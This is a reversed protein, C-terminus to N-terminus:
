FDKINISFYNEIKEIIIADEKTFRSILTSDLDIVGLQKKNKNYFPVVLESRSNSDCAIHGSFAKVDNVIITKNEKISTGCVGNGVKIKECAIPGVFPGLFLEKNNLFYFGCWSVDKLYDQIIVVLNSCLSNLELFNNVPHIFGKVTSLFEEDNAINM